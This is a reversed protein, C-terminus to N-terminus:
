QSNTRVVRVKYANEKNKTSGSTLQPLIVFTAYDNLGSYNSYNWYNSSSWHTTNAFPFLAEQIVLNDENEIPNELAFMKEFDTKSPIRWDSFGCLKLNNIATLYGSTDCSPAESCSGKNYDGRIGSPTINFYWSFTWDKDRLGDDDSKVEWVFDTENDYICSWKTSNEENGESDWMLNQISLPKGSIDLKTFRPNLPISFQVTTTKNTLTTGITLQFSYHEGKRPLGEISFSTESTTSNLLSLDKDAEFPIHKWNYTIEGQEETISANPASIYMFGNRIKYSLEGISPPTLIASATTILNQINLEVVKTDNKVLSGLTGSLKLVFPKSSLDAYTTDSLLNSECIEEGKQKNIRQTKSLLSQTGSDTGIVDVSIDINLPIYSTNKLRYCYNLNKDNSLSIKYDILGINFSDPLSGATLNPDLNYKEMISDVAIGINVIKELIASYADDQSYLYEGNTLIGTSPTLVEEAIATILDTNNNVNYIQFLKQTDAGMKFYQKLYADVVRNTNLKSVSGAIEWSSYANNFASLFETGLSNICSSPSKFFDRCSLLLHVEKALFLSIEEPLHDSFLATVTQEVESLTASQIAESTFKEVETILKYDDIVGNADLSNNYIDTYSTISLADSVAKSASIILETNEQNRNISGQLEDWIRNGEIISAPLTANLYYYLWLRAKASNRLTNVNFEDPKSFVDINGSYFKYLDSNEIHALKYARVAHSMSSLRDTTFEKGTIEKYRALFVPDDPNISNLTLETGKFKGFTSETITIGNEPNNDSDIAQLIMAVKSPKEAQLITTIEKAEMSAVNIDGLFFNISDGQHFSFEGKNNTIGKIGSSTVYHLGEVSSDVLKGTSVETVEVTPAEVSNKCGISVTCALFLAVFKNHKIM